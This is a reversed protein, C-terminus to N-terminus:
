YLSYIYQVVFKTKIDVFGLSYGSPEGQIYQTEEEGEMKEAKKDIGKKGVHLDRREDGKRRWM